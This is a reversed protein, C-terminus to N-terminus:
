YLTPPVVEGPEVGIDELGRNRLEELRRKLDEDAESESEEESEDADDKSPDKDPELLFADPEGRRRKRDLEDPPSPEDRQSLKAAKAGAPDFISGVRGSDRRTREWAGGYAAYTYDDADCCLRCGATPLIGLVVILLVASRVHFKASSRMILIETSGKLNFTAAVSRCRLLFGIVVDTIM